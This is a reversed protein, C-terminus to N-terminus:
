FYKRREEEKIQQLTACSLALAIYDQPTYGNKDKISQDAGYRLLLSYVGLDNMIAALHLPTRGDKDQANPNAGHELLYEIIKLRNAEMRKKHEELYSFLVEHAILLSIDKEIKESLAVFYHLPTRGSEDQINLDIKKEEVLKKLREFDLIKVIEFLEKEIKEVM